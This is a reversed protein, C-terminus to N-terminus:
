HAGEGFHDIDDGVTQSAPDEGAVVLEERRGGIEELWAVGDPTFPLIGIASLPHIAPLRAAATRRTVVPANDPKANGRPKVAHHYVGAEKAAVLRVATREFDSFCRIVGNQGIAAYRPCADQILGMELGICAM